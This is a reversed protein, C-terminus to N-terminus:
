KGLLRCSCGAAAILGIAITKMILEEQRWWIRKEMLIRRLRQHWNAKPGIMGEMMPKGCSLGM